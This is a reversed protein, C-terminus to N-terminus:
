GLTREATAFGEGNRHNFFQWLGNGGVLLECLLTSRHEM